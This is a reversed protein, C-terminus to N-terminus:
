GLAVTVVFLMMYGTIMLVCVFAQLVCIQQVACVCLRVFMTDLSVRWVCVTFVKGSVMLASQLITSVCVFLLGIEERQDSHSINVCM